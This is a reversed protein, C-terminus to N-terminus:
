VSINLIQGAYLFGINKHVPNPFTYVDFGSSELKNVLMFHEQDSEFQHWELVIQSFKKLIKPPTNLLIDYEAGECDIKLILNSSNTLEAVQSLSITKVSKGLNKTTTRSNGFNIMNTQIKLPSNGVASNSLYVNNIKNIAINKELIKVSDALPEFVFVERCHSAALISFEGIAGGIDIVSAEKNLKLGIKEYDSNLYIETISWLDMFNRFYFITKDNLVILKKSSDFGKLHKLFAFVVKLRYFIAKM